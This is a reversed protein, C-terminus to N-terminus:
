GVILDVESIKRLPRRLVDPQGDDSPQLGVDDVLLDGGGKEEIFTFVVETAGIYTPQAVVAVPQVKM